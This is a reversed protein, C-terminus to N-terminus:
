PLKSQFDAADLQMENMGSEPPGFSELRMVKLRDSM